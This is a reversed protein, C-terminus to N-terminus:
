KRNAFSNVENKNSASEKFFLHTLGHAKAEKRFPSYKKTKLLMKNRNKKFNNKSFSNKQKKETNINSKVFVNKNKAESHNANMSGVSNFFEVKKAIQKKARTKLHSQKLKPGKILKVKPIKNKRSYSIRNVNLSTDTKPPLNHNKKKKMKQPKKDKYLKVKNVETTRFGIKYNRKPIDVPNGLDDSVFKNNQISYMGYKAKGITHNQQSVSNKLAEKQNIRTFMFPNKQNNINSNPRFDRAEKPSFVDYINPFSEDVNRDTKANREQSLQYIMEKNSKMKENREFTKVSKPNRSLHKFSKARPYEITNLFKSKIRQSLKSDYINLISKKGEKMEDGLNKKWPEESRYNIGLSLQNKMPDREKFKERKKRIREINRKKEKMLQEWESDCKERHDISNAFVSNIESFNNLESKIHTRLDEINYTRNFTKKDNRSNIETLTEKLNELYENRQKLKENEKKLKELVLNQKKKNEKKKTDQEELDIVKKELVSVKKSLEEVQIVLEKDKSSEKTEKDKFFETIMSKLQVIEEKNSQFVQLIAKIQLNEESGLSKKAQRNAINGKKQLNQLLRKKEIRKNGSKFLNLSNNSALAIRSIDNMKENPSALENKENESDMLNEENKSNISMRHISQKEKFSSTPRLLSKHKDFYPNSMMSVPNNLILNNNLSKQYENKPIKRKSIRGSSIRKFSDKSKLFNHSKFQKTFPRNFGGYKGPVMRQAGIKTSRNLQGLLSTRAPISLKPNRLFHPSRHGRMSRVEGFFDNQKMNQHRSKVSPPILDSDDLNIWKDDKDKKDFSIPSASNGAKVENKVLNSKVRSFLQNGKQEMNATQKNQIISILQNLAQSDHNALDLLMNKVNSFQPYNHDWTQISQKRLPPMVIKMLSNPTSKTKGFYHEPTMNFPSNRGKAERANEELMEQNDHNSLNNTEENTFIAENRRQRGTELELMGEKATTDEQKLSISTIDMQQNTESPSKRKAIKANSKMTPKNALRM